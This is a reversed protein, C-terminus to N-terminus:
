GFFFNRGIWFSYHNSLFIIVSNSSLLTRESSFSKRLFRSSISCVLLSFRLSFIYTYTFSSRDKLKLSLKGGFRLKLTPLNWCRVARCGGSNIFSRGVQVKLKVGDEGKRNRKTRSRERKKKRGREGERKGKKEKVKKVLTWELIM